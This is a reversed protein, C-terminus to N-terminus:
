LLQGKLEKIESEPLDTIEAVEQASMGKALLKKAIEIAKEKKGKVLGEKLGEKLGKAKGEELYYKAFSTDKLTLGVKAGEKEILPTLERIFAREADPPLALLHDIFIFLRQVYEKRVDKLTIKDQLILRMLKWKYKKKLDTDKKSRLAYLGALVALAFPNNLQLLSTESQSAIYYTNYRYTLETGFFEYRFQVPNFKSSDDTFIALAYIKENYKDLIRYFSQFMRLAFNKDYTGQVEVHIYVWQSCGNKLRLKVLKDAIRRSNMSDPFITQLEQDLFQPPVSFDVQEFLPPAFFLLFEDFMETIIEKWLQDYQPRTENM